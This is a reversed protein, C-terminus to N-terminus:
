AYNFKKSQIIASFTKYNITHYNHQYHLLIEFNAGYKATNIEHAQSSNEAASNKALQKELKGLNWHSLGCTTQNEDNNVKVQGIHWIQCM